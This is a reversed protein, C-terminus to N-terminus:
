SAEEENDETFKVSVLKSVGAEQMTVGYLADASEMTGKRHTILIFQARSDHNKLFRAFRRVNADDLATEIEDLVCFPSPKMRLIAFLLAIACLAREGGSLLNMNQLSKGPPRAVIEIASGLADNEDTLRLFGTGGGFMEAFVAVFNESIIAFQEKFREGMQANLMAIVEELHEQALNIDDRQKTMFGHRETMVRYEEVANVNVTGGMERLGNKLATEEQRLRAPSLGLPPSEMAQRPTINYEEWMENHFRTGEDRIAEKKLRLRELELHLRAELKFAEQEGEALVNLDAELASRKVMLVGAAAEAEEKEAEMELLKAKLEDIRNLKDEKEIDLGELGNALAVAEAQAAEAALGAKEAANETQSASETLRSLEVLIANHRKDAADRIRKQATLSEQKSTIEALLGAIGSEADRQLNKQGRLETNIANLRNLLEGDQKALEGLRKALENLAGKERSFATEQSARKIEYEHLAVKARELLDSVGGLKGSLGDLAANRVATLREGESVAEGLEDLERKRSLIGFKKDASGGTIAGGPNIVEGALTVVKYAYKHKRSFVVAADMDEAVLVRGLLNGAIGEYREDARVFDAAAGLIGPEAALRNKIYGLDRPKISTLPLFTARGGRTSKLHEIGRKAADEDDAVIDTIAGGLAVEVCVEYKAPTKILDGVAGHIGALKGRLSAELVSKVSYQYGERNQELDELIRRKQRNGALAAQEAKFINKLETYEANLKDRSSTFAQIDGKIALADKLAAELEMKLAQLGNEREAYEEDLGSREDDLGEKRNELEAYAAALGEIRSKVDTVSQLSEIHRTNFLALDSEREALVRNQGALEERLASAEGDKNVIDDALAALKDLGALKEAYLVDAAAKRGEIDSLIRKKREEIYEIHMEQMKIDNDAEQERLVIAAREDSGRELQVGLAALEERCFQLREKQAKQKDEADRLEATLGGVTAEARKEAEEQGELFNAYANIKVAKLREMLALYRKAKEAQEGLPELQGEIEAIIDCVRELGRNERELKSVAEDRRSKFKIIGAAEEFLARRDESRVSLVDEIRGQGIISYGERGLGTDMFLEHVDRLRVATGNILYQSEGSRYLRRSVAVEAGFEAETGARFEGEANDLVLTVEAFAMGRRNETGSFIIDEMRQGRLSKVSQEGLAWRVADAINSKGSGNPGVVATIGRNFEFVTKEHFSKFGHLELRKLYM